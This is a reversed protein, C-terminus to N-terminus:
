IYNTFNILWLSSISSLFFYLFCVCCPGFKAGVEDDSMMMEPPPEFDVDLKWTCVGEEASSGSNRRRRKRRKRVKPKRAERWIQPLSSPKGPGLLSSFRLIGHSKFGPFLTKVKARLEELTMNEPILSPIASEIDLKKGDNTGSASDNTSPPTPRPPPPPPPPPPSQPPTTKHPVSQPTHSAPPTLASQSPLDLAPAPAPPPSHKLVITGNDKSITVSPTGSVPSPPPPSSDEAVQLMFLHLIYDHSNFLCAKAPLLRLSLNLKEYFSSHRVGLLSLLYTNLMCVRYIAPLSASEIKSFSLLFIDFPVVLCCCLLSIVVCYSICARLPSLVSSM